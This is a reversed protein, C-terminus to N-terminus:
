VDSFEDHVRTIECFLKKRRKEGWFVMLVCERIDIFVKDANKNKKNENWKIEKDADMGHTM